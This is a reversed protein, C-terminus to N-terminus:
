SVTERRERKTAVMRWRKAGFEWLPIAEDTAIPRGSQVPNSGDTM